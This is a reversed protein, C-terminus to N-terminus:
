GASNLVPVGKRKGISIRKSKIAYGAKWSYLNIVKTGPIRDTMQLEKERIIKTRRENMKSCLIAARINISDNKLPHIRSSTLDTDIRDRNGM